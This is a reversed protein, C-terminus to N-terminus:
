IDNENSADGSMTDAKGCSGAQRLKRGRAQRWWNSIGAGADLIVFSYLSPLSGDM